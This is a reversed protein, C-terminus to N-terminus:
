FENMTITIPGDTTELIEEYHATLINWLIEPMPQDFHMIYYKGTVCDVNKINRGALRAIRTSIAEISTTAMNKPYVVVSTFVPSNNM